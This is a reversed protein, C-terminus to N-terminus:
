NLPKGDIRIGTKKQVSGIRMAKQRHKRFIRVIRDVQDDPCVLVFGVGMNFTRYMERRSIRGEKKILQFIAPPEPLRDLDVGISGSRLVRELKLFAGGGTIHALGHIETGGLLERVPKVYIRTPELLEEGVSQELGSPTDRLSHKKLLVSRALSLGNSHIGSSAVGVLADGRRVKDGLVLNKKSCIGVALGILDGVRNSLLEPTIATEGGVVAMGAEMAGKSIGDAIQEVIGPDPQALAIHDLFAVPESGTCILDNACMAVCDIGVTDYKEMLHAVIMKTGVNDTHLSLVQDGGADILGAYHGIPLIPYGFKGKRTTFTTQLKRAIVRHAAKVKSDDVGAKAYTMRPRPL